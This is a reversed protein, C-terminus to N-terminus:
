SGPRRPETLGNERRKKAPMWIELACWTAASLESEPALTNALLKDWRERADKLRKPSAGLHKEIEEISPLVCKKLHDQVADALEKLKLIRITADGQVTIPDPEWVWQARPLHRFNPIWQIHDLPDVNPDAPDLLLPQEGSTDFIRSPPPNPIPYKPSPIPKTGKVLPFYNAKHGQDNCTPCSFYLNTWTWTLWWYHEKDVTEPKNDPLHRWAGDKPRYHDVPNSSFRCSQECWACKKKQALYLREKTAKSGYGDLTDKFEKSHAGHQAIAAIAKSLHNKRATGLGRPEDCDRKIRIM